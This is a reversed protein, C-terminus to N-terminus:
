DIECNWMSKRARTAGKTGLARTVPRPQHVVDSKGGTRPPDPSNLRFPTQEVRNSESAEKVTKAAAPRNPM